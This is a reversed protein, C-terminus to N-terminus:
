QQLAPIPPPRQQWSPTCYPLCPHLPPVAPPFGWVAILSFWCVSVYVAVDAAAGVQCFILCRHGEVKLKNLLGDLAMLKGSDNLAKALAYPQSPPAAGFVRFLCSALGQQAVAAFGEHGLPPQPMGPPPPPLPVSIPPQQTHVVLPFAQQQQQQQAATGAGAAAAAVAVTEQAM